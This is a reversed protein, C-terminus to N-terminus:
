KYVLSVRACVQEEHPYETCSAGVGSWHQGHPRCTADHRCGSGRRAQRSSCELGLQSCVSLM